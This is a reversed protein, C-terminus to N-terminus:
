SSAQATPKLIPLEKQRPPLQVIAECTVATWDVIGGSLFIPLLAYLFCSLFEYQWSQLGMSNNCVTSIYSISSTRTM